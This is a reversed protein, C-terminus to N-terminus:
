VKEPWCEEPTDACTRHKAQKLLWSFFAAIGLISGVFGILMALNQQRMPLNEVIWLSLSICLPIAILTIGVVAMSLIAGCRNRVLEEPPWLQVAALRYTAPDVWLRAGSIWALGSGLLALFIGSASVMGMAVAMRQILHIMGGELNANQIVLGFLMISLSVWFIRGMGAAIHMSGLAVGRTALPDSRWLFWGSYAYTWGFRLAFVLASWNLDATLEFIVFAALGFLPWGWTSFFTRNTSPSSDDHDSDEEPWDINQNRQEVMM